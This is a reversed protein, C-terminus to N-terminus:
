REKHILYAGHDVRGTSRARVHCSCDVLEISRCNLLFDIDLQIILSEPSELAPRHDHGLGSQGNDNTSRNLYRPGGSLLLGPGRSQEPVPGLNGAALRENVLDGTRVMPACPLM